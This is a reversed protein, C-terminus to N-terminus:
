KLALVKNIIHTLEPWDNRVAMFAHTELEPIELFVKYSEIGKKQILYQSFESRIFFSIEGNAMADNVDDATQYPVFKVSKNKKAFSEILRSAAIYGVQTGSLDAMNHVYKKVSHSGFLYFRSSGTSLTFNYQSTFKKNSLVSGIIDAERNNATSLVKAWSPQHQIRFHIDTQQSFLKAYEPIIGSYEGNEEMMLYPPLGTFFVISVEPHKDMWAQEEPTFHPTNVTKEEAHVSELLGYAFLSFVVFYSTFLHKIAYSLLQKISYKFPM